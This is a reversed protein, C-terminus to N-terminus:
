KNSHLNIYYESIVKGFKAYEQRSVPQVMFENLWEKSSGVAMKVLVRGAHDDM